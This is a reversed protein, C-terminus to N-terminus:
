SKLDTKYEQKHIIPRNLYATKFLANKFILTKLIHTKLVM